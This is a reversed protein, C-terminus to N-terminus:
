KMTKTRGTTIEMFLKMAIWEIPESTEVEDSCYLKYVPTNLQLRLDMVTNEFVINHVLMILLATELGTTKNLYYITNSLLFEASDEETEMKDKTLIVRNFVFSNNVTDIISQIISDNAYSLIQQVARAIESPTKLASTMYNTRVAITDSIVNNYMYLSEPIDQTFELLKGTIICHIISNSDELEEINIRKNVAVLERNIYNERLTEDETEEADFYMYIDSTNLEISESLLCIFAILHHMDQSELVYDTNFISIGSQSTSIHKAFASVSSMDMTRLNKLTEIKNDSFCVLAMIASNVLNDPDIKFTHDYNGIAVLDKIPSNDMWLVTGVDPIALSLYKGQEGVELLETDDIELDTNPTFIEPETFEIESDDALEEIDNVEPVIVKRDESENRITGITKYMFIVKDFKSFLLKLKNLVESESLGQLDIDYSKANILLDCRVSPQVIKFIDGDFLMHMLEFSVAQYLEQLCTGVFKNLEGIQFLKSNVVGVYARPLEPNDEVASLLQKAMVQQESESESQKREMEELKDRTSSLELKLEENKSILDAIKDRYVLETAGDLGSTNGVEGQGQTLSSIQNELEVIRQSNETIQSTLNEIQIDKEGIQGTLDEIQGDKENIQSSLKEIQIGKENIQGNLEAIIGDKKGIQGTLDEIQSNLSDIQEDKESSHGDLEVERDSLQAETDSVKERLIFLQESMENNEKTLTEITINATQLSKKLNDLEETHGDEIIAQATDVIETSEAASLSCIIDKVKTSNEDTIPLGIQSLIFEIMQNTNFLEEISEPTVSIFLESLSETSWGDKSLLELVEDASDDFINPIEYKGENNYIYITKGDTLVKYEFGRSNSYNLFTDIKENSPLEGNYGYVLITYRATNDIAIEWDAEGSYIAKVGKERKKNYGLSLLLDDLLLDNTEFPNNHIDQERYQITELIEQFGNRM